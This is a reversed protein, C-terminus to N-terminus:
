GSRILCFRVGRHFGFEVELAVFGGDVALEEGLEFGEDLADGVADADEGVGGGCQALGEAEEPYAEVEGAVVFGEVYAGELAVHGAHEDAFAAADAAGGPGGALCLDHGVDFLEGAVDGAAAAGAGFDDYGEVGGVAAADEAHEVYVAVAGGGEVIGVAVVEFLGAGDEGAVPGCGASGRGSGGKGRGRVAGGGPAPIKKGQRKGWFAGGSKGLEGLVKQM